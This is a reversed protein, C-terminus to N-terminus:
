KLFGSHVSVKVSPLPLAGDEMWVLCNLRAKLHTGLTVLTDFKKETHITIVSKLVMIYM